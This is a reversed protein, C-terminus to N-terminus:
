MSNGRILSKKSTFYALFEKKFYQLINVRRPHVHNKWLLFFFCKSALSLPFVLMNVYDFVSMWKYGSVSVHINRTFCLFMLPYYKYPRFCVKLSETFFFVIQLFAKRIVTLSLCAVLDCSFTQLLKHSLLIHSCFFRMLPLIFSSCQSVFMSQSNQWVSIIVIDQLIM